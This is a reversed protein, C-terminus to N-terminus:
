TFYQLSQHNLFFFFFFFSIKFETIKTYIQLRKDKMLNTLVICICKESPQNRPLYTQPKDTNGEGIEGKSGRECVGRCCCSAWCGTRSGPLGPSWQSIRLKGELVCGWVGSWYDGFKKVSCGITLIKLIGGIDKYIVLMNSNIYQSWLLVCQFLFDEISLSSTFWM